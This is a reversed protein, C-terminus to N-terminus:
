PIDLEWGYCPYQVDFSEKVLDYAKRQKEKFDPMSKHAFIGNYTYGLRRGLQFMRETKWATVRACM